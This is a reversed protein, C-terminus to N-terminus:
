DWVLKGAAMLTREKGSSGVVTITPRKVLGDLHIMAEADGDYNSGVAFHCTGYVKEDELMNATIRAKRNLGIGLEGISRANRAYKQVLAARLEGRKGAELAKKEGLRVSEELKIAETGGSISTIFGDKVETMIPRKIVIEGEHLVISGDYAINGNMTGLAPSVFVEGSPLNGARGPKRFNGDDSRAKRGRIGITVDTGGPATVRVSRAGDLARVVRSCDSRLRSYDIPVTRRFMDKTTGPSWFVRTKKEEYLFDFIHDYRRKGKYGTKMGWKDNGLREKSMSIIVHPKASMAKVVEEEAFDFQKKERQFILSPAADVDLCADFIAMSLERVDKGPNSILLVREDKKVALVENVAARAARVLSKDYSGVFRDM